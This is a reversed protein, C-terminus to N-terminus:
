LPTDTTVVLAASIASAPSVEENGHRITRRNKKSHRSIYVHRCLWTGTGADPLLEYAAYEL